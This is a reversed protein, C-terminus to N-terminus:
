FFEKKINAVKIRSTQKHIKNIIEIFSGIGSSGVFDLKFMDITIICTPNKRCLLELEREFPILNEYDIGGELYITFNGCSDTRVRAEM